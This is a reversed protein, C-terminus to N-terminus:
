GDEAPIAPDPLYVMAGPLRVDPCPTPPDLGPYGEYTGGLLLGGLWPAPPQYTIMMMMLTDM